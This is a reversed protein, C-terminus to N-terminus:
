RDMETGVIGTSWLVPVVDDLRAGELLTSLAAALAVSPGKVRARTPRPGGDACALVAMEGAPAEVSATEVAAPPCLRGDKMPLRDADLHGADDDILVDTCVGAIRAYELLVKLPPVRTGLEYGSISAQLIAPHVNLRRVLEDQSAINGKWKSRLGNCLLRM